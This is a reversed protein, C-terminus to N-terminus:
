DDRHDGGQHHNGEETAQDTCYNREPKLVGPQGPGVSRFSITSAVPYKPSGGGIEGEGELPDWAVPDYPM